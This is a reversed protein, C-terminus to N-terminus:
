FIFHLFRNGFKFRGISLFFNDWTSPKEIILYDSYKKLFSVYDENDIKKQAYASKFESITKGMEEKLQGVAMGVQEESLSDINVGYQALDDEYPYNQNLSVKPVGTFQIYNDIHDTSRFLM